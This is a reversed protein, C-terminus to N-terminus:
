MGSVSLSFLKPRDSPEGDAMLIIDSFEKALLLFLVTVLSNMQAMLSRLILLSKHYHNLTLNSQLVM